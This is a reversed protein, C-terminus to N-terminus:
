VFLATLSHIRRGVVHVNYIVSSCCAGYWDSYWCYVLKLLLLVLRCTDCVRVCVVVTCTDVFLKFILIARINLMGRYRVLACQVSCHRM